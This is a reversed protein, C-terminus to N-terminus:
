LFVAEVTSFMSEYLRLLVAATKVFYNYELTPGDKPVDKEEVLEM